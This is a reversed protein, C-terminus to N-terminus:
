QSVQWGMVPRDHELKATPIAQTLVNQTLTYNVPFSL